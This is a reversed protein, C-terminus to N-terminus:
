GWEVEIIRRNKRNKTFNKSKRMVEYKQRIAERTKKKSEYKPIRKLKKKDYEESKSRKESVGRDIAKQNNKM